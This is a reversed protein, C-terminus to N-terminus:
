SSWPPLAASFVPESARRGDGAFCSRHREAPGCGHPRGRGALNGQKHAYSLTLSGLSPGCWSGVCIRGSMPMLTTKAPTIAVAFANKAGDRSALPTVLCALARVGPGDSCPATKLAVLREASLSQDASRGSHGYLQSNRWRLSGYRM